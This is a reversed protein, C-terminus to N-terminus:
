QDVVLEGERDSIRLNTTEGSKLNMTLNLVRDGEIFTLQYEGPVLEWFNAEARLKGFRIKQPDIGGGLLSTKGNVKLLVEELESEIRIEAALPILQVILKLSDQYFQLPANIYRTYYGPCQIRFRYADGTQLSAAAAEVWHDNEFVALGAQGLLNLGTYSDTVDLSVKLAKKPVSPSKMELVLGDVKESLPPLYFLRWEVQSGWRTMLRYNGAELFLSKGQVAPDNMTFAGVHELFRTRDRYLNLDGAQFFVKGDYAVDIKLEGRSNKLFLRYFTGTRLSGYMLGGTIALIGILAPFIKWSKKKMSVAQASSVKEAKKRDGKGIGSGVVSDVLFLLIERAAADGTKPAALKLLRLIPKVSTFRLGQNRVTGKQMIWFLPFGKSFLFPLLSVHRSRLVKKKLGELSDGDFLKEGTLMEFLTVALAYIDTRRTIKARPLFQEPAMYSPTGVPFFEGSQENVDELQAIGFDGLKVSGDRSIFINSPKIDRHIINRSHIYELARCCSCLILRCTGAPLAGGKKLIEDLSCGEVFEMVIYHKSGEKFHDFVRVINDHNLDMMLAAEQRFREYYLRKGRLNLKKLVVKRKLTPHTASYVTSTGGTGLCSLIKYKGIEEPAKSM